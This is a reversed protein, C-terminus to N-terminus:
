DGASLWSGFRWIRSTFPLAIFATTGNGFLSEWTYPRSWRAVSCLTDCRPPRAAGSCPRGPLRFARSIPWALLHFRGVPSRAGFVRRLKLVPAISMAARCISQASSSFTIPKLEIKSNFWISQQCCHVRYHSEETHQDDDVRLCPDLRYGCLKVM